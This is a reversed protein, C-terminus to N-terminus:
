GASYRLTVAPQTWFQTWVGIGFPDDQHIGPDCCRAEARGRDTSGLVGVSIRDRPAWRCCINMEHRPLNDRYKASGPKEAAADNAKQMSATKGNPDRRPM